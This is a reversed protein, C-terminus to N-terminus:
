AIVVFANEYIGVRVCHRSSCICCDTDCGCSSYAVVEVLGATICLNSAFLGLTLKM